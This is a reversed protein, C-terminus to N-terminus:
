GGLRESLDCWDPNMSQILSEKRERKYRKIQKERTISAEHSDLREFYVLRDVNYKKTFGTNAIISLASRM